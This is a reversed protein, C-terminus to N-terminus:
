NPEQRLRSIYRVYFFFPVLVTALCSESFINVVCVDVFAAKRLHEKFNTNTFTECYECPFM